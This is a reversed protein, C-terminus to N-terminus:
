TLKVWERISPVISARNNRPVVWQAAVECKQITYEAVGSQDGPEKAHVPSYIKVSPWIATKVFYMRVKLIESDPLEEVSTSEQNLLEIDQGLRDYQLKLTRAKNRCYESYNACLDFDVSFEDGPESMRLIIPEPHVRRCISLWATGSVMDFLSAFQESRTPVSFELNQKMRYKELYASVPNLLGFINLSLIEVEDFFHIPLVNGDLVERIARSRTKTRAFGDLLSNEAMDKELANLMTAQNATCGFLLPSFLKDIFIRAIMGMIMMTRKNEDYLLSDWVRPDDPDADEVVEALGIFLPSANMENWPHKWELEDPKIDFGGFNDLVFSTVIKNAESFLHDFFKDPQPDDAHRPFKLLKVVFDEDPAMVINGPGGKVHRIQDPPLHSYRGKEKPKPGQCRRDLNDLMQLIGNYDEETLRGQFTKHFKRGSGKLPENITETPLEEEKPHVQTPSSPGPPTILRITTVEEKPNVQPTIPRSTTVEMETLLPPNSCTPPTPSGTAVEWGPPLPLSPGPPTILPSLAVDEGPPPTRVDPTRSGRHGPGTRQPTKM